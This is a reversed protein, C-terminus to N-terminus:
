PIRATRRHQYRRELRRPFAAHLDVFVLALLDEPLNPTTVGRPIGHKLTSSATSAAFFEAARDPHHLRLDVGAAAALAAAHLERSTAPRRACSRAALDEAHLEDRMLGPGSPLLHPAQQDLFASCMALLEVEAHHDVPPVCRTTSMAEDAFAAHVDLLDGRLVGSCIRLSNTSGAAPSGALCRRM